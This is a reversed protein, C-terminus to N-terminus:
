RDVDLRGICSQINILTGGVLHSSHWDRGEDADEDAGGAAQDQGRAQQSVDEAWSLELSGVHFHLVHRLLAIHRGGIMNIM